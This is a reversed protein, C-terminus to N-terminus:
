QAIKKAVEINPTTVFVARFNNMVVVPHRGKSVTEESTYGQLYVAGCLLCLIVIALLEKVKLKRISVM